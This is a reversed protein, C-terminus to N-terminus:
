RARSRNSNSAPLRITISKEDDREQPDPSRRRGRRAVLAGNRGDRRVPSFVARDGYHLLDAGPAFVVKWELGKAQHVTMVAVGDVDLDAEEVAEEYDVCRECYRVFEVLCPDVADAAFRQALMDFARLNALRQDGQPDDAYSAALPVTSFLRRVGLPASESRGPLLLALWVRLQELRGRVVEDLRDDAVGDLVVAAWDHRAVAAVRALGEDDLGLQPSKLVRVLALALAVPRDFDVLLRLWARADRIEPMDLLGARRDLAVPIGRKAMARVYRHAHTRKRLLVAIDNAEMGQDRLRAIESAIGEAEQEIRSAIPEGTEGFTRAYVCAAQSRGRMAQMAAGVNYGALAASLAAHAAHVIQERSRRNEALPYIADAAEALRRMIGPDAGNFGYISQRFDGVATVNTLEREAHEPDGFLERLFALQSPATDQFEDILVYRWRQRLVEGVEPHEAVLKTALTLLDGYTAAQAEDLRENFRRYVGAVFRM